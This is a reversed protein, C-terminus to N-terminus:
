VARSVVHGLYSVEESFFSCKEPNVYLKNERLKQLVKRLHDLHEDETKSFVIIDDLYVLCFDGIFPRLLDNMYNQFVPPANTLGFPMVTYEFHGFPTNFATKPIDSEHLRIQHYGSKLDLTSFVSASGLSDLLDDIRPLPYKNRITVKNLGRYDVCMRLSGDKKVVFLVPAGYPSTSPRVRGTRVFEFVQDHCEQKERPSLRTCPRYPTNTGPIQPIVEHTKRPPPLDDPLDTRIVDGFETRITSVHPHGTETASVEFVEKVHCVLMKGTQRLAAIFKKASLPRPKTPGKKPPKELRIVHRKEGKFLTVTMTGYNLIAKHRLLWSQGLLLDFNNGLDVVTATVKCKFKKVMITVTTEGHVPLPTGDGWETKARSERIPLGMDVALRRNILCDGDFATDLSGSAKLAAVRAHTGM